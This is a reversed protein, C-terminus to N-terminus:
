QYPEIAIGHATLLGVLKPRTGRTLYLRCARGDVLDIQVNFENVDTFRTRDIDTYAFRLKEQTLTLRSDLISEQVPNKMGLAVVTEYFRAVGNLSPEFRRGNASVSLTCTADTFPGEEDDSPVDQEM